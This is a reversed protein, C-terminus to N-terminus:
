FFQALDEDWDLYVEQVIDRVKWGNETHRLDLLALRGIYSTHDGNSSSVASLALVEAQSGSPTCSAVKIYMPNTHINVDYNITVGAGEGGGRNIALNTKGEEDLYPEYTEYYANYDMVNNEDSNLTYYATLFEEAVATIRESTTESVIESATGSVNSTESQVPTVDDYPNSITEEEPLILVPTTQIYYQYLFLGALGAIVLLVILVILVKKKLVFEKGRVDHGILNLLRGESVM